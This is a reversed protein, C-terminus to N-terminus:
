VVRNRMGGSKFSEINLRIENLCRVRAEYAGWAIHPTLIVNNMQMIRNYCHESGFPEKTYVDIGLGGIKGSLVADCLAHEDAVAGRAVNVFVSGDKMKSIMDRSIIGRTEDTLPLHVSIIDSKKMLEDLPVCEYKEDPNRKYGLINCGLAEAAQAVKRGINGLGVIGWTKGSLEYYVPSLRNAVGSATYEGSAVYRRYEDLHMTLYLAMSVTLQAVSQTSYGCVNAVAIGHNKCYETDINDYGTAAICILKLKEAKELEDKGLRVKNVVVVEASRIREATQEPETSDYIETDDGFINIDVDDGLTKGDPVVIKM